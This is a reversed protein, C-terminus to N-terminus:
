GTLSLKLSVQISTLVDQLISWIVQTPLQYESCCVEIADFSYATVLDSRYGGAGASKYSFTGSMIRSRRLLLPSSIIKVENSSSLM